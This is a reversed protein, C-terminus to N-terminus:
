EQRMKRIVQEARAQRVHLVYRHWGILGASAMFWVSLSISFVIDRNRSKKVSDNVLAKGILSIGFALIGAAIGIVCNVRPVEPPDVRTLLLGFCWMGGVFLCLLGAPYRVWSPMVPRGAVSLDLRSDPWHAAIARAAHHTGAMLLAITALIAVIAIIAEVTERRM